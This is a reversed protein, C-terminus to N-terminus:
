CLYATQIVTGNWFIWKIVLVINLETQGLSLIEDPSVVGPWPPGPLSKLLVTCTNGLMLPVEGDFQKTDYGLIRDYQPPPIGRCLILRHIKCGWCVTDTHLVIYTTRWASSGKTQRPAFGFLPSQVRSRLAFPLLFPVGTLSHSLPVSFFATPSPHRSHGTSM